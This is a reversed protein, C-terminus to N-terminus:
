ADCEPCVFTEDDKTLGVCDEHYWVGCSECRRMDEQENEGCGPCFWDEETDNITPKAKSKKASKGKGAGKGKGKGTKANTNASSEFLSKSIVTARCNISKATTVTKKKTKTPTKMIYDFSIHPSSSTSSPTSPRSPPGQSTSPQPTPAHSTSPQPTSTHSTSPQPTSANSTSPQPTSTHSTSPQPTPNHSTSSQVSRCQTTPPQPMLTHSTSPQLPPHQTTSPQPPPDETTTEETQTVESPAFAHDPIADKAQAKRHRLEPHRNLFLRFWKEGALNSTFPHNLNNKEFYEFVYSRIMKATLPLGIDSFRVIRNVLMQEEEACMLSKRGLRKEMSGSKIHNRLTRRPIGFQKAAERISIGAGRDIATMANELDQQSWTGRRSQAAM